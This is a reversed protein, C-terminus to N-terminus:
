IVDVRAPVSRPEFPYGQDSLEYAGSTSTNNSEILGVREEIFALVVDISMSKDIYVAAIRCFKHWRHGRAISRCSLGDDIDINM